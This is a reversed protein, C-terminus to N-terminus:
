DNRINLASALTVAASAADAMAQATGVRIDNDTRQAQLLDVLTAGGKQYAYQVMKVVNASKPAISEKYRHWRAAAEELAVKASIIDSAAQMKIKGLQDAALEQAAIAAKINGRNFNWLPLPLSVGIGITNPMDPPNHEYQLLFTPDPIRMAKQLGLDDGAKRLSEEAALIDPRSEVSPRHGFSNGTALAELKDSPKWDGKPSKVGLLVELAIRATKATSTAAEANLDLQDAAIDIQTKDSRSIDGANLRAAAIKAERRLSEASEHLIAVNAEALLVAVYAKSVGLDLTRRADKFSAEAAKLGHAASKQRLTRKGGIEYLQNVAFVSDYNRDWLKNGLPTSNPASDTSIKGSSFSLTPNPFERSVMHQAVAQDVNAQAALLDWNRLFAIRRAEALSLTKPLADTACYAGKVLSPEPERGFSFCTASLTAVFFCLWRRPWLSKLPSLPYSM